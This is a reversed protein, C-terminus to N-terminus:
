YRKKLDTSKYQEPDRNVYADTVRVGAPSGDLKIKYICNGTWSRHFYVWGNEAYIFWKDEMDQPVHGLMIKEADLDSFFRDYEFSENKDPFTQINWDEKKATM